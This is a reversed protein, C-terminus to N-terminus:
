VRNQIFGGKKDIECTKELFKYLDETSITKSSVWQDDKFGEDSVTLV